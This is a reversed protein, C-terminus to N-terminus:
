SSFRGSLSQRRRRRGAVVQQFEVQLWAVGRAVISVLEVLAVVVVVSASWSQGVVVVLWSRSSSWGCWARGVGSAM